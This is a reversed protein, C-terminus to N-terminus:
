PEPSAPPLPTAAPPGPPLPEPPAPGIDYDDIDDGYMAGFPAGSLAPLFPGAPAPGAPTRVPLKPFHFPGKVRAVIAAVIGLLTIVMFAVDSTSRGYSMSVHTSTPIVVMENPAVRYPGKAGSVEWNPFYSVKVLVPVGVQDVDFSLSQEDIQVNSVTVPDLAVPDIAQVPAVVSVERGRTDASEVEETEPDDVMGPPRTPDPVEQSEDVAVDIHQWDDPGNYAPIAAWQDQNQFWSTGLELNRERQDGPRHNVVVPQVSLPVVVDSGDVSYINWPGSVDILHLDPQADAQAKAEATTVMVYQVGLAQLYKVGVAADNNVYRLERVPNSSQKSMAGSALFSYPTTGSAEFYLAEMSGICGDTWYPLLMLAMTTGYKGNGVGDRGDNEWLARGCGHEEGVKGMTQVLNYYEPYMTQGEYGKFNYAAWGSGVAKSPNPNSRLPGWAYTPEGHTTTMHGGPLVQFAWGFIILVVLGILGASVSAWGVGPVDRTSRNRVLDILLALVEVAGIMMMLYRTLYFFPLMRPNWLLGIVPLSDRTVYILAVSVFMTIALAIGLVHRRVVVFVCGIGALAGILVDLPAKQDFLMGWFSENPYQPKYGYKMDTMFEHNTLFPGVWFAALAMTLLGVAVSYLLRKVFLRNEVLQWGLKSSLLAVVVVDALVVLATLAYFISSWQALLVTLGAVAPSVIVINVLRREAEGGATGDLTRALVRWLDAGLRCLVFIVAAVAVYILVIGHSLCALALFVSARSLHTGDQLGRALYGLGVMMLSVAISFSFEGAMTSKLNGGYISYSENLAFALGAFAFMEPMPYRFRALRGFAWCCLPLTVLGSIVVLKFAVGYPLIVDLLVIALAPVVMYFRYVPLGSYWDMSWGSLQWHPLLHDRLYAPGWVHAGMDGGTPTNNDFILDASSKFPNLHVAWMMCFTTVVLCAFTVATKIVREDPWPRRGWRYVRRVGWIRDALPRGPTAGVETDDIPAPPADVEEAPPAWSSLDEAPADADPEGERQPFEKLDSV